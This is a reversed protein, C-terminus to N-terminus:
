SGRARPPVEFVADGAIGFVRDSPAAVIISRGTFSGFAPLVGVQDAFHYCPVTVREGSRGTVRVAPHLHGALVYATPCATPQHSLRFPVEDWPDDVAEIDLEPPPDGAHRDHNGRVLKLTLGSHVGRWARLAALTTSALSHRDHFFDGLFVIRAPRSREIATDLRALNDSTTGRPVPIGANRFTAAKGFHPDAVYLTRSGPHHLLREPLMVFVEGAVTVTLDAM